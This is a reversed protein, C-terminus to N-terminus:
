VGMVRAYARPTATAQMRQGEINLEALAQDYLTKWVPIREDNVMFAELKLLSGYIYVDPHNTLLWNPSTTALGTIRKYYLLDATYSDGPTPLFEFSGGVVTFWIPKGATSYTARKEAMEEPSIFILNKVPSGALTIRKVELMGTPVAETKSAVAFAADTVLMEAHRVKRSVEAEVMAVADVIESTLDSRNTWSAISAQIETYTSLAM